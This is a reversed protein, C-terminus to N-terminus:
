KGKSRSQKETASRRSKPSNQDNPSKEEAVKHAEIRIWGREPDASWQGRSKAGSKGSAPLGFTQGIGKSSTREQEAVVNSVAPNLVLANLIIFVSVLSSIKM